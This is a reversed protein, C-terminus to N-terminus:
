NRSMSQKIHHAGGSLSIAVWCIKSLMLKGSVEMLAVEAFQRIGSVLTRASATTRCVKCFAYGTPQWRRTIGGLGVSSSSPFHIEEISIEVQPGEAATLSHVDKMAPSSTSGEWDLSSPFSLAGSM